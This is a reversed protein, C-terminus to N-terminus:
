PILREIIRKLSLLKLRETNDYLIPDINLRWGRGQVTVGDVSCTFSNPIGRGITIQDSLQSLSSIVQRLTKVKYIALLAPIVIRRKGKSTNVYLKGRKEKSVKTDCKSM